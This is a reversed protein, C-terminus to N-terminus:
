DVREVTVGPEREFWHPGVWGTGPATLLKFFANSVRIPGHGPPPARTQTPLTRAGPALAAPAPAPAPAPAHVPQLDLLATTLLRSRVWGCGGYAQACGGFESGGM